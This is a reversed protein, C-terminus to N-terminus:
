EPCSVIIGGAVRPIGALDPRAVLRTFGARALLAAASEAQDYGHEFLLAGGHALHAPAGAVIARISALGDASGDTLAGPPEFRLDGQGLHADGAAVYPPNAVVLDFRRGPVAEYWSARIFDIRGDCGHHRANTRALALAAESADTAVIRVDPRECALTVAIAGSGTGLDLVTPPNGDGPLPERPCAAPSHRPDRPRRLFDLAAEVLTETEPRPILVDPGVEFDRGYFERRGVLYAVPHGLARQAVLADLRADQGETLVHMPHAAIWARDVDLLHAFLVRADVRGIALAAEDLAARVTRPM